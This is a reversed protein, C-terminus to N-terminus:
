DLEEGIFRIYGMFMVQWIHDIILMGMVILGGGALGIPDSTLYRGLSPDYYRHYNYHYGSEQDFYQGAFRLNFEFGQKSEISKTEGFTDFEAQWVINKDKDSIAKPTGM